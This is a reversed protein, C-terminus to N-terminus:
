TISSTIWEPNPAPATRTERGASIATQGCDRLAVGLVHDAIGVFTIGPREHVPGYELAIRVGHDFAHKDGSIGDAGTFAVDVHRASYRAPVMSSPPRRHGPVHSEQSLLNQTGAESEVHLDLFPGTSKDAAFLRRKDGRDFPSRPM